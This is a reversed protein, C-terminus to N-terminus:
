ARRRRAFLRLSALDPSRGSNWGADIKDAALDAGFAVLVFNRNLFFARHSERQLKHSFRRDETRMLSQSEALSLKKVLDNALAILAEVSNRVPFLGNRLRDKIAKPLPLSTLCVHEFVSAIKVFASHAKVGLDFAQVNGKTM